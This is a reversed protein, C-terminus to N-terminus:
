VAILAFASLVAQRKDLNAKSVRDFLDELNDCIKMLSELSSQRLLTQLAAHDELYGGELPLGRAKARIMHKYIWPLLTSFHAYAEDRSSKALQDSLKHIDVWSWQPYSEFLSLILSLTEIGDQDIFKLAEGISGDSLKYLTELAGDELFHGRATLIKSFNGESLKQFNFVRCRSRITPIMAGIRHTILMLVTNAPPEELIKLLANQANRNMSDADNIIVVRWGGFSATMHLFPAIRRIDAVSIADKFKDKVADYAPEICLLDPHAGSAMLRLAPHHPSTTLNEAKPPTQDEFISAQALDTGSAQALLFRALRFAFTSKGIGKPGSFILGHPMCGKNFASLIEEEIKQHGFCDTTQHPLHGPELVAPNDILLSESKEIEEPPPDGFLDM